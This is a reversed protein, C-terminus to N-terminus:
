EGSGPAFHRLFRVLSLANSLRECNNMLFAVVADDRERIAATSALARLYLSSQQCEAAIRPHERHRHCLLPPADVLHKADSSVPKVSPESCRAHNERDAYSCRSSQYSDMHISYLEPQARQIEADDLEVERVAPFEIEAVQDRLKDYRRQWLRPSVRGSNVDDAAEQAIEGELGHADRCADSCEKCAAHAAFVEIPSKKVPNKKLRKLPKHAEDNEVARRKRGSAM